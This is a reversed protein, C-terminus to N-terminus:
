KNQPDNKNGENMKSLKANGFRVDFDMLSILIEEPLNKMTGLMKLTENKPMRKLKKFMNLGDLVMRMDMMRIGIDLYMHMM